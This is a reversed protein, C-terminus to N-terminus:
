QSAIIEQLREYQHDFRKPLKLGFTTHNNGSTLLIDGGMRRMAYRATYLGLGHDNAQHTGRYFMRFIDPAVESPISLHYDKLMIIVTDDLEECSITLELAESFSARRFTATNNVIKTIAQRLLFDDISLYDTDSFQHQIRVTTYATSESLDHEISSFFSRLDTSEIALDRDHIVSVELLQELMNHMNDAVASVKDFYDLSCVEKSEMAAINCIGRITAIPGLFNHYAKYLFIEIDQNAQRLEEYINALHKGGESSQKEAVSYQTQLLHDQEEIIKQQSQLITAQEALQESLADHAPERKTYRSRTLVFTLTVLALMTLVSWLNLAPCDTTLFFSQIQNGQLIAQYTGNPNTTTATALSHLISKM